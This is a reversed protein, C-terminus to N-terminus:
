TARGKRDANVPLTITFTSGKGLESDVLIRGGHMEVIRRSIALGLGTGGKQRTSTNDVQQFEEFIKTQDAAAIGPGSDRVAVNFAGDAHSAEIAVEGTETFKIANGVLNLLVQALRREDGRGVPLGQAIKTRLALSKQAALPEVAVYVGQLLEALSYDSLSLTLQGAEIKSLDLVDNILGLLHKGNIQVREIVHRMKEPAEGYINDLILETYGLIANLPTRLEHSMNALFQSKHKSAVELQRGKDEIERFLRANQIALVSQAAFTKMLEVTNPAFAGPARRRVVLMGVVDDGRALPAVLRALYGARLTIDNIPSAAEERLDAVQTPEGEALVSAVTPDDTNIHRGSLADILHQEMGYTARQQFERAQDDFVYIAGADTGSLQVAKTVITLLVTELDLTSNVAQSVEGLARLEGVSRGLEDTRTRLENLLRTNEIAIVAQAAFSELLAIQKQTFPRVEQRYVTLSGLLVVDKVLAVQIASHAGALDVLARRLPDGTRYAEEDALDASVILREGRLMRGLPNSPLPRVPRRAIEVFAASTGHVAAAHFQEEDRLWLIGFVAECLQTAKELMAAFVPELDGPSSSIVQLVEATATQQELSETLERTRQQEAEFLRVNEIAIVAQDAFTAVLEIERDTFPEVRNRALAIVGIPEDERMLPVGIMSRVGGVQADSKKEYLPDAWADVIRAVQKTLVARGVVTGTGPAIMTEREIELYGPVLSHGAAFRYVGNEPRYIVAQEARCLRLATDVVSQLIPQLEFKSGSIVGLVEATATQQELSETLERTRQQEAEFLRVNEIAIAAQDAFTKVLAIQAESFPRVQQRTLTLVGVPTGERLMPVGLLTRFGGLRVAQEWTYDADAQVDHIHVVTGELLVRGTGTDRGVEVPLDKVYEAYEASFGYAVSRYFVNDKRQTITGQEADCLRAATELLTLLVTHLDFTSRSIVKLVDATATQQQLSETLERTRQQEAEFLRVNEIAIAAQDAFTEVLAIQKDTFPRVGNQPHIIIVGLLDDGKLIPVGLVTQFEGLDKSGYTYERDVLVNPIHVTRREAAARAAASQRGPRIPNAEAFKRLSQSVNYGVAMRLLEGDFRYIFGREAGCLRVSSEVVTEFVANLDFASRSIVDLVKATATQQELSETLDDTRQRLENLLRANEIAIVAQSAFSTLLAIQKDTFPRVEQRYVTIGGILEDEKLMPVALLTRVGGLEVASVAAPFRESVYVEDAALDAVHVVKKTAILRGFITKAHPRYNPSQKRAEAFAAPANHTAVHHMIEGDWRSINGFTAHCIRVAKELMAAFVPELDGPSSSIVQLVESTATQQELSESLERTRQQEAEFLRANEIAIVAETAFNKIVEIQRATFPRVEQRYVAIAGILEEDRIMPVAAITRAGSKEVLNVVDPAGKIYVREAKMDHVHVVQRTRVIRYLPNDANPPIVPRHSTSEAWARPAGYLAVRRFAGHEYLLLNGFKADCLRTANELIAEFVSKLEGSSRSIVGLVQSTAAQQARAENLERTRQELQHQLEAVAVATNERTVGAARRLKPVAPKRPRAKRPKPSARKRKNTARVM